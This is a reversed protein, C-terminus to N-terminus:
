RAGSTYIRIESDVGDAIMFDDIGDENLDGIALGWPRELGSLRVIELQATGGIIIMADSSWSSILIDEVGDGSVDGVAVEKGGSAMPFPSEDAESFAGQGNGLFVRVPSNGRESASIIDPFSDGNIDAIAVSFPDVIKLPSAPKFAISASNTRIMVAVEDLNPTVFDALGDGNLDGITVNIWLTSRKYDMTQPAISGQFADELGFLAVSDHYPVTLELTYDMHGDLTVKIPILHM